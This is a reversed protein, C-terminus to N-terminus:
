ARECHREKLKLVAAPRSASMTKRETGPKFACDFGEAAFTALVAGQAEVDSADEAV